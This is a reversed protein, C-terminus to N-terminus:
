VIFYNGETSSPNDSDNEDSSDSDATVIQKLVKLTSFLTRRHAAMAFVSVYRDLGIEWKPIISVFIAVSPFISFWVYFDLLFYHDKQNRWLRYGILHYGGCRIISFEMGVILIVAVRSYPRVSLKPM